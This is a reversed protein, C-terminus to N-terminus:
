LEQYEADNLADTLEEIASDKSILDGDYDNLYETFKQLVSEPLVYIM